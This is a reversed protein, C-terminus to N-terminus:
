SIGFIMSCQCFGWQLESPFELSTFTLQKTRQLEWSHANKCVDPLGVDHLCADREPHLPTTSTYDATELLKLSRYSQSTGHTGLFMNSTNTISRCFAYKFVYPKQTIGQCQLVHLLSIVDRWIYILTKLWVCSLRKRINVIQGWTYTMM